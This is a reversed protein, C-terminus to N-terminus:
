PGTAEAFRVAPNQRLRNLSEGVPRVQTSALSYVGAESPGAIIKLHSDDLLTQLQALTIQPAFVARIVAGPARKAPSTVTRYNDAYPSQAGDRHSITVWASAVAIVGVSAALMARAPTVIRRPQTAAATEPLADLRQRLRNLSGSSLHHVGSDGSMARHVARQQQLEAACAPCAGIHGDIRERERDSVTENVYWPIQSWVYQHEHTREQTGTNNM